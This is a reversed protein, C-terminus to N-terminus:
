YSTVDAPEIQAVLEFRQKEKLTLNHENLSVGSVPIIVTIELFASVDSGDVTYCAVTTTGVGEAVFVNDENVNGVSPNSSIGHLTKISANEPYIKPELLVQSKDGTDQLLPITMQRPLEISEVLIPKVTILQSTSVGNHATAILYAEGPALAAAELPNSDSLKIV